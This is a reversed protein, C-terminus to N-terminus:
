RKAVKNAHVMIGPSSQLDELEYLVSLDSEVKTLKSVGEEGEFSAKGDRSDAFSMAERYSPFRSRPGSESMAELVYSKLLKPWYKAFTGRTDFRDMWILKGNIAVVVGAAQRVPFHAMLVNVYEEMAPQTKQSVYNERYTGTSNDTGLKHLQTAVNSWVETQSAKVVAAARGGSPAAFAGGGARGAAGGLGGFQTSQATWRGHEVCFVALDVPTKTPPILGDKQVIRDQQGGLLMEGAVLLLTKGSSNTLWLTNVQAGGNQRFQPRSGGIGAGGQYQSRSVGGSPRSRILGPTNGTETIVITGQKIGEDLTIIDAPRSSLGAYIPYLAINRYAVVRDDLPPKQALCLAVLLTGSGILSM